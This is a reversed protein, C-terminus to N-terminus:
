DFLKRCNPCKKPKLQIACMRCIYQSCCFTMLESNVQDYCVMCENVQRYCLKEIELDFLLKNKLKRKLIIEDHYKSYEYDQKLNNYILNLFEAIIFVPIIHVPSIDDLDFSIMCPDTNEQSKHEAKYINIRDIRCTLYIRINSTYIINFHINIKILKSFNFDDIYFIDHLIGFNRVKKIFIMM